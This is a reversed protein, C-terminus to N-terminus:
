KKTNSVGALCERGAPLSATGNVVDTRSVSLEGHLRMKQEVANGVGSQDVYHANEVLAHVHSRTEFISGAWLVARKPPSRWMRGTIDKEEAGIADAYVSATTLQARGLWKQVQNLPIGASAAAVAFGHRLRKPLGIARRAQRGAAVSRVARSGGPGFVGATDRAADRSVSASATCSISPTSCPPPV